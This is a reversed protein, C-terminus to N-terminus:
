RTARMLKLRDAKPGGFTHEHAYVAGQGFAELRMRAFFKKRTYRRGAHEYEQHYVYLGPRDDQILTGDKLWRKLVAANDAASLVDYPPAVVGSLDRGFRRENYRIACFATIEPVTATEKGAIIDRFQRARGDPRCARGRVRVARGRLILLVRM